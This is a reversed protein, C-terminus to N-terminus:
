VSDTAHADQSVLVGYRNLVDTSCHRRGADRRRADSEQSQEQQMRPDNAMCHRVAHGWPILVCFEIVDDPLEQVEVCTKLFLYTLELVM